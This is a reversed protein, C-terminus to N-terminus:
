LGDGVVVGWLFCECDGVDGGYFFYEFWDCWIFELYWVCVVVVGVFYVEGVCFGFEVYLGCVLDFFYDEEFFWFGDCGDEEFWYM